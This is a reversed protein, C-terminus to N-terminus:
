EDALEFHHLDLRQDLGRRGLLVTKAAGAEDEDDGESDSWFEGDVM